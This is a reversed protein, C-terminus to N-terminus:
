IRTFAAPILNLLMRIAIAGSIITIGQPLSVANVFWILQTPMGAWNMAYSAVFASLDITTILGQIVTLIGDFPLFFAKKLIWLIGDLTWTLMRGLFDFLANFMYTM